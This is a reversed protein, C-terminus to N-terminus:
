CACPNDGSAVDVASFNGALCVIGVGGELLSDGISSADGVGEGLRGWDGEGQGWRLALILEDVEDAVRKGM